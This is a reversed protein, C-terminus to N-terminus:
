AVAPRIPAAAVPKATVEAAQPKKADAWAARAADLGTLAQRYKARTLNRLAAVLASDSPGGFLKQARTTLQLWDHWEGIRDQMQRLQDILVKAAPDDNALEAIYRARKGAIRYSHLTEEASGTSSVANLIRKAIAVPSMNPSAEFQKAARKARERIEKASKRDLAKHLKKQATARSEGLTHILRSKRSAEQPIKLSRLASLQADLDRVKGAKRRLRALRKLLKKDNSSAQAALEGILAEVRRSASRFGHLNEPTAQKELKSVRRILKRFVADNQAPIKAM